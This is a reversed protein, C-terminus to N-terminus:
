QLISFAAEEGDAIGAAMLLGREAPSPFCFYSFFCRGKDLAQM